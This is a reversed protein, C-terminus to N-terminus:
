ECLLIDYFGLAATAKSYPGMHIYCTTMFVSELSQRTLGGHIMRYSHNFDQDQLCHSVKMMERIM